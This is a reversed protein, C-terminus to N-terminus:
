IIVFNIAPGIQLEIQNPQEAQYIEGDLSYTYAQDSSVLLKECCASTKYSSVMIGNQVMILPLQWILKQEEATINFYQFKDPFKQALPFLRPGMPMREITAAMISCSRQRLTQGPVATVELNQATVLRKYLDGKTVASACLRTVLWMAGFAGSKNKYFENLVNCAIGDAFLFGYNGDVCLTRVSKTTVETPSSMTELLRFLLGEPSGKLGLNNALVNMTGGRLLAVRPLPDDGYARIFATLTRAITGDGGNIALTAIGSQKFKYAVRQLEDLSKTLELRGQEGLIYGLLKTRSPDRKNLKSYPNTIIGIGSM